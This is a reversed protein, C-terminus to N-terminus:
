APRLQGRLLKRRLRRFCSVFHGQDLRNTKGEGFGLRGSQCERPPDMVFEKGLNELAKEAVVFDLSRHEPAHM